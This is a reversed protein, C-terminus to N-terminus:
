SGPISSGAKAQAWLAHNLCIRDVFNSIRCDFNSVFEFILLEFELFLKQMAIGALDKKQIMKIKIM